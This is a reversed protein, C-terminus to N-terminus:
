PSNNTVTVITVWQSQITLMSIIREYTLKKEPPVFYPVDGKSSNSGSTSPRPKSGEKSTQAQPKAPSSVPM